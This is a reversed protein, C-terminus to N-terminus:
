NGIKRDAKTKKKERIVPSFSLTGGGRFAKGKNDRNGKKGKGLLATRIGKVNRRSSVMTLRGGRREELKKGRSCPNGKLKKKAGV